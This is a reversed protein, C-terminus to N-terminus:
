EVRGAFLTGIRNKMMKMQAAVAVAAAGVKAWYRSGYYRSGFYRQPFM